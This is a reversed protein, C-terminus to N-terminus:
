KKLLERARQIEFDLVDDLSDDAELAAVRELLPVAEDNRGLMVLLDGLCCCAQYYVVGREPETSTVVERLIQEGRVADGGDLLLLAKQFSQEASM